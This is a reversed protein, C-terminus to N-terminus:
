SILVNAGNEKDSLEDLLLHEIHPVVDSVDLLRGNPRSAAYQEIMLHSLGSIYKTNIMDPSVANIRIGSDAYEAALSKMLGLLAYKVTTYATQYAPPDGATVSSLVFVVRGDGKKKMAPLFTQLPLVSSRLALLMSSELADEDSKVFKTVSYPSMPIHVIHDPVSATGYDPCSSVRRDSSATIDPSIDAYASPTSAESDRRITSILNSIDEKASLDARITRIVDPYGAALKDLRDNVTRYTAWILDYKDIVSEILALGIDSSAGLVLLVSM